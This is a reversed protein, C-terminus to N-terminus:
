RLDIRPIHFAAGSAKSHLSLAGWSGADQRGSRRLNRVPVPVIHDRSGERGRGLDARLRAGHFASLGGVFNRNQSIASNTHTFYIPGGRSSPM